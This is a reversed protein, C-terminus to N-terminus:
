LSRSHSSWTLIQKTGATKSDYPELKLSLQTFCLM